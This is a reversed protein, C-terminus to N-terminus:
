PCVVGKQERQTKFHLICSEEDPFNKTFDFINM